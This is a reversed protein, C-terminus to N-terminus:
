SNSSGLPASCSADSIARTTGVAITNVADIAPTLGEVKIYDNFRISPLNSGATTSVLSVIHLGERLFTRTLHPADGGGHFLPRVDVKGGRALDDLALLHTADAAWHERFSGHGVEILFPLPTGPVAQWGRPQLWFDHALLPTAFLSASAIGLLLKRM